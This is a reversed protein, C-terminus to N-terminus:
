VHKKVFSDDELNSANERIQRLASLAYKRYTNVNLKGKYNVGDFLRPNNERDFSITGEDSFEKLNLTKLFELSKKIEKTESFMEKLAATCFVTGTGCIVTALIALSKIFLSDSTAIGTAGLATLSAFFTDSFGILVKVLDSDEKYLFTQANLARLNEQYLMTDQIEREKENILKDLEERNNSHLEEKKVDGNVMEIEIQSSNEGKSIDYSRITEAEDMTGIAYKM